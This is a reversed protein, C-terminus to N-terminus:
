ESKFNILPLWSRLLTALEPDREVVTKREGNCWRRVGEAWYELVSASAYTDDWMGKEIASAYLTDLRERFNPRIDEIARQFAHGFEHIFIGWSGGACAGNLKCSGRAPHADSHEYRQRFEPVNELGRYNVETFKVMYLGSQPTM